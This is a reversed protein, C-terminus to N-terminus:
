CLRRRKSLKAILIHSANCYIKFSVNSRNTKVKFLHSQAEISSTNLKKHTRATSKKVNIGFQSKMVISLRQDEMSLKATLIDSVTFFIEFSINSRNTNIYFQSQGTASLRRATNFNSNFLKAAPVLLM